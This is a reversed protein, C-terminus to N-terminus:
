DTILIERKSKLLFSINASELMETVKKLEQDSSLIIKYNSRLATKLDSYISLEMLDLYSFKSTVRKAFGPM